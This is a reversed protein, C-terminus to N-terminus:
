ILSCGSYEYQNKTRDYMCVHMCWVRVYWRVLPCCDMWGSSRSLVVHNNHIQTDCYNADYWYWTASVRKWTIYIICISLDISIVHHHSPMSLYIVSSSSLIICSRCRWNYTYIDRLSLMYRDYRCVMVAWIIRIMWM